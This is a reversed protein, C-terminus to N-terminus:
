DERSKTILDELTLNGDIKSREVFLELNKGLLELAKEKSWLQVKKVQGVNTRDKGTGEYEEFVEISKVYAAVEPPWEHIEKLAGKEDYIKRLDAFGLNRLESLIRERTWEVRDNECEKYRSNRKDEKRIWNIVAGYHVDWTECLNILSGGSAVHICIQDMVEEEKKLLEATRQKIGKVNSLNM